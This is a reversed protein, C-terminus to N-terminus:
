ASSDTNEHKRLLMYYAWSPGVYVCLRCTCTWHHAVSEYLNCKLNLTSPFPHLPRYTCQYPTSTLSRSVFHRFIVIEEDIDPTYFIKKTKRPVILVFWVSWVNCLYGQAFPRARSNKTPKRKVVWNVTDCFYKRRCCHRRRRRRCRASCSYHSPLLASCIFLMLYIFVSCTTQSSGFRITKVFDTCM